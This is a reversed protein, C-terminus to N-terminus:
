PPNRTRNKNARIPRVTVVPGQDAPRRRSLPFCQVDVYIPEGPAVEAAVDREILMGDHREVRPRPPAGARSEPACRPPRFLYDTM